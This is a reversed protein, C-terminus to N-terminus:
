GPALVYRQAMTVLERVLDDSDGSPGFGPGYATRIVMAAFVMSFCFRHAERSRPSTGGGGAPQAVVEVFREGLATRYAEGRRLVEPHASSILVVSRLFAENELFIAVLSEVGRQIRQGHDALTWRDADSFLQESQRVRRMGHEYVASFLADKSDARAYLARPPVGARECLAAITFAEYGGDELLQVGADLIRDWQERTRRQRPQRVALVGADQGDAVGIGAM